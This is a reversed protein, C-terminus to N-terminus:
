FGDKLPRDGENPFDVLSSGAHDRKLVFYKSSLVNGYLTKASLGVTGSEPRNGFGSGGSTGNKRNRADINVVSSCIREVASTVVMYYSSRTHHALVIKALM